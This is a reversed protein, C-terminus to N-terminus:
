PTSFDYATPNCRKYYEFYSEGWKTDILSGDEEYFKVLDRAAKAVKDIEDQYITEESDGDRIVICFIGERKYQEYYEVEKLALKAELLYNFVVERNRFGARKAVRKTEELLKSKFLEKQEKFMLARVDHHTLLERIDLIANYYHPDYLFRCPTDVLDDEYECYIPVEISMIDFTIGEKSWRGVYPNGITLSGVKEVKYDPLNRIEEDRQIEKIYKECGEKYRSAKSSHRNKEYYTEVYNEIRTNSFFEERDLLFLENAKITIEM